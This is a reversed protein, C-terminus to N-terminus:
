NLRARLRHASAELTSREEPNNAALIDLQDAAASFQGLGALVQSLAQREYDGIGPVLTRLHLVWALSSLDRDRSFLAKLNNLLRALTAISSTEAVLSPDFAADSGHLTRFIQECADISLRAGRHFPDVYISRDVRDQLLFHGPMGVYALPVGIRRGVERTIISLTIPIGSRRDLVADLYSNAPDYYNRQDGRFGLEDFLLRTLGDLTPQRVQEALDDIRALERGVELDPRAHKAVLLAARDLPFGEPTSVLAAFEETPNM